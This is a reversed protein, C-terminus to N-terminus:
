LWLFIKKYLMTHTTPIVGKMAENGHLYLRPVLNICTQSHSKSACIRAYTENGTEQVLTM